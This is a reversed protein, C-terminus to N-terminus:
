HIFSALRYFSLKANDKWIIYISPNLEDEKQLLEFCVDCSDDDNKFIEKIEFAQHCKRCKKHLEKDLRELCLESTKLETNM